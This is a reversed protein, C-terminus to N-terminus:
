KILARILNQKMIDETFENLFRKRANKGLEERLKKNKLLCLLANALATSNKAPVTLAEKQDTVSEENGGVKTAIIAKGARMAELLAISHYEHLSPLVFIDWAALWQHVNNQYGLFEVYDSVHLEKCMNQLYNELPGDGIIYIKFPIDTSKIVTPIAKILFDIGKVEDIRSALGISIYSNPLSVAKVPSKFDSIGNHVVTLKEIPVKENLLYKLSFNEVLIVRKAYFRYIFTQAKNILKEITKKTKTPAHYLGHYSCIMPIKIQYRWRIIQVVIPGNFGHCFIIDPNTELILKHTKSIWSLDYGNKIPIMHAGIEELPKRDYNCNKVDICASVVNISKNIDGLSAYTLFCKGIGGTSFKYILNLIKM